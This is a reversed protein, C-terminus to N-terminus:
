AEGRAVPPSPLDQWHTPVGLLDYGTASIEWFSEHMNCVIYPGSVTMQPCYVLVDKRLGPITEPFQHWLSTM